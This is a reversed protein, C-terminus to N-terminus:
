RQGQVQHWVPRIDLVQHSKEEVLHHFRCPCPCSYKFYYWFNGISKPNSTTFPM